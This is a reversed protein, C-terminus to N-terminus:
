FCENTHKFIDSSNNIITWQKQRKKYQNKFDLQNSKFNLCELNKKEIKLFNNIEGLIIYLFYFLGLITSQYITKYSM